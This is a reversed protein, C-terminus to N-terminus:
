EDAAIAELILRALDAPKTFQPWHGTPLDVYTVDDIRKFERVPELDDDIWKRLTESSFEPCIMTVPVEYRREDSLRQPDNAVSAPSPIARERFSVLAAEDLDELDATDFESWDFLPIEGNESPFESVSGDGDPFGGVYIARVVREPRADVAAYALGAGMSHGVVAVPGDVADIAAVVAEVCQERTVGSRDADRSEMGPLTIPHARHGARELHPIVGDWSSADLWLGPILIVEM